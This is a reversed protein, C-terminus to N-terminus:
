QGAEVGIAELVAAEIEIHEPRAVPLPMDPPPLLRFEEIDVVEPVTPVYAGPAYPIMAVYAFSEPHLTVLGLKDNHRLVLEALREPANLYAWEVRLVRTREKAGAIRDRLDEIRALTSKTEYNTRYTWVAVVVIAIVAFVYGLKKM